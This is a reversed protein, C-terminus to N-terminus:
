IQNAMITPCVTFLDSLFCVWSYVTWSHLSMLVISVQGHIVNNAHQIYVFQGLLFLELFRWVHYGTKVSAQRNCPSTRVSFLCNKKMSTGLPPHFMGQFKCRSLGAFSNPLQNRHLKPPPFFRGQGCHFHFFRPRHILPLYKQLCRMKWQLMIIALFPFKRQEDPVIINRM